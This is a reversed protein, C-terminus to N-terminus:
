WQGGLNLRDSSQGSQYAEETMTRELVENGLMAELRSTADTCSMGSFGSAAVVVRGDPGITVVVEEVGM